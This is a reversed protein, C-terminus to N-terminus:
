PEGEPQGPTQVRVSWLSGGATIFLTKLDAGGFACNTVEDKPISIFDVLTETPSFIYIGGKRKDATEYPPHPENLGGAVYLRGERDLAMGDPGRGYEWDMVLKRSDEIVSGDAALSFRWLKRAGGRTNNNNDAVYLYQDGASVLVGNPRDVEYAIIRRTRGTEDILYVGEIARGEADLMEMDERNGYRPDSFYIRGRSDMTLDNPSNYRKGEYRDSLVTLIGDKESRTVRRRGAECVILRGQKDFLLGNAGDSPERVVETKGKPDRRQIKGDGTFYLFGSPHWAPGEGAGLDGLFEPRAGPVLPSDSAPLGTATALMALAIMPWAYSGPQGHTADTRKM